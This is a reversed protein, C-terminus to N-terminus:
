PEALVEAAVAFAKNGAPAGCYVTAHLLVEAIEDDTLGHRRAARVHMRLEDWHGLAMLVSLTVVSRTRRDIGDRSWADAWAAGVIFDQFPQTFPTTAAVARDVHADGLVERRTRMGREHREDTVADAPVADDPM